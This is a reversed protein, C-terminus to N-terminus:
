YALWIDDIAAKNRIEQMLETKSAEANSFNDVNLDVRVSGIDISLFRLDNNWLILEINRRCLEEFYRELGITITALTKPHTVQIVMEYAQYFIMDPIYNEIILINPQKFRIAPKRSNIAKQHANNLFLLDQKMNVTAPIYPAGNIRHMHIQKIRVASEDLIAEIQPALKVEMYAPNISPDYVPISCGPIDTLFYRIPIRIQTSSVRNFEQLSMYIIDRIGVDSIVSSLHGVLGIKKKVEDILLNMNM